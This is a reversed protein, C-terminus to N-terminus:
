KLEVKTKLTQSIEALKTKVTEQIGTSIASTAVRMADKMANEISYHLHQHVLHTVRTQAGSWNYSGSEGKSKGQFDVKEQMYAEARQTLYEIFTIKQGRKEGWQNTAQLTLNEIFDSVGPLIHKEAMANITDDIHAKVRKEITVAFASKVDFEIDSEHDYGVSTLVQQCLKEVVREQLQEQTFGLSELTIATM